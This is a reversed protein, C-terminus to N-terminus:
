MKSPQPAFSRSLRNRSAFSGRRRLVNIGLFGIGEANCESAVLALPYDMSWTLASGSCGRMVVGAVRTKRGIVLKRQESPPFSMSVLSKEPDHDAASAM